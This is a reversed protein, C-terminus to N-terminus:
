RGGGHGALECGSVRQCHRHLAKRVDKGPNFGTEKEDFHTNHLCTVWAEADCASGPEAWQAFANGMKGLNKVVAVQGGVIDDVMKKFAQNLHGAIERTEPEGSVHVWFQDWKEQWQAVKQWDFTVSIKGNNSDAKEVDIGLEAPTIDPGHNREFICNQNNKLFANKNASLNAIANCEDKNGHKCEYEAMMQKNNLGRLKYRAEQCSMQATGKTAMPQATAAGVLACLTAIKM